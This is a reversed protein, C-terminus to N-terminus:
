DYAEQFQKRVWETYDNDTRYRPDDMLKELDARSMRNQQQNGTTNRASYSSQMMQYIANVGHASKAMESVAGEPLNKQAWQKVKQVRENFSESDPHMGWDAALQSKQHEARAKQVEPVINEALFDVMKQAQDNTLGADKFFQQDEESLGEGFAEPLELQYNEPPKSSESVETLKRELEQYSEALQEPSKFKEPLWEPRESWEQDTNPDDSPLPPPQSGEAEGTDNSAAPAEAGTDTTGQVGLLDPSEGTAGESNGTTGSEAAEESM